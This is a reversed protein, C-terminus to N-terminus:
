QLFQFPDDFVYEYDLVQKSLENSIRKGKGGKEFTPLELKFHECAKTYYVERSPHVSACANVLIGWKQQLIIKEIIGLCDKLHILNVPSDGNSLGKKGAFFTAPHRKPGILGAFRIITVREKLENRVFEEAKFLENKEVEAPQFTETFIENKDPYVGTTSTFIYHTKPSFQKSVATFREGYNGVIKSPPICWIVVDTDVTLLPPMSEQVNLDVIAHPIDMATLENASNETTCTGVVHFSANRLQVALPKGLWGLSLIAIKRM